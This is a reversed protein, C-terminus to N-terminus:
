KKFKYSFTTELVQYNTKAVKKIETIGTDLTIRLYNKLAEVNYEKNKLDYKLAKEIIKNLCM